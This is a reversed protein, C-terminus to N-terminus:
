EVIEWTGKKDSGLRKIKGENKLKAMNWEVGRLSLETVAALQRQTIKANEKIAELIKEEASTNEGCNSKIEEEGNKKVTEESSKESPLPVIIRFM